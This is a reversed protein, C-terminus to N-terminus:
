IIKWYSQFILERQSTDLHSLNRSDFCVKDYCFYHFKLTTFKSDEERDISYAWRARHDLSECHFFAPHFIVRRAPNMLVRCVRLPHACGPRRIEYVVHRGGDDTSYQSIELSLRWVIDYNDVVCVIVFSRGGWVANMLMTYRLPTALPPPARAGWLNETGGPAGGGLFIIM